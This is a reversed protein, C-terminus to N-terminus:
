LGRVTGHTVEYGGVIGHQEAVEHHQQLVGADFGRHEVAVHAGHLAREAGDGLPEGHGGLAPVGRAAQEDLGVEALPHYLAHRHRRCGM